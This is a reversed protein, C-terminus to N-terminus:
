IYVIDNLEACWVRLSREQSTKNPYNLVGILSCYYFTTIRMYM